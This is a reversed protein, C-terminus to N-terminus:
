GVNGNQTDRPKVLPTAKQSAQSTVFTDGPYVYTRPYPDTTYLGYLNADLCVHLFNLKSNSYDHSEACVMLHQLVRLFDRMTPEGQIMEVIEPFAAIMDAKSTHKHDVM